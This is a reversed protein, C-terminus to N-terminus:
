KPRRAWRDALRLLQGLPLEYGALLPTEYTGTAPIVLTQDQGEAFRHVMLAKAFRDVIWYEKVGIERYEARKSVYDRELNVKGASVFEVVITPAETEGPLRGLGAWIVRDARRRQQKTEVTQEAVTLDLAAGNPHTEGYSRLSYGLQDNPDRESLSPIPSVILVGNILEYRWGDKFRARDFEDLTLPSGAARPGLRLRRVRTPAQSM